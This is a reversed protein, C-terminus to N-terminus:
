QRIDLLRHSFKTEGRRRLAIQHFDTNVASFLKPRIDCILIEPSEIQCECPQASVRFRSHRLRAIALRESAQERAFMLKEISIVPFQHQDCPDNVDCPIYCSIHKATSYLM